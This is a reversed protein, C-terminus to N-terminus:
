GSNWFLYNSGFPDRGHHRSSDKESVAARREDAQAKGGREDRARRLRRPGALLDQNGDELAAGDVTEVHDDRETLAGIVLVAWRDRNRLGACLAAREIEVPEEADM